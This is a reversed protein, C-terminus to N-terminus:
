VASLSYDASQNITTPPTTTTTKNNKRAHKKM